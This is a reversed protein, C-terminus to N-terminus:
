KNAEEKGSFVYRRGSALSLFTACNEGAGKEEVGEGVELSGATGVSFGLLEM